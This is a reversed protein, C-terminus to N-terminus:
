RQVDRDMNNPVYGIREKLESLLRANEERLKTILLQPDETGGGYSRCEKLTKACTKRHICIECGIDM